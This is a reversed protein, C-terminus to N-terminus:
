KFKVATGYAIIEAASQMISSSAFRVNIVADAGLGEAEDIMRQTAIQRAERLMETYGSIEGGIITKFGSGIDKGINKSQVTNGKVLGLVDFDQGPIYNLNILKM